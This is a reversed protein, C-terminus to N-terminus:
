NIVNITECRVGCWLKIVFQASQISFLEISVAPWHDRREGRELLSINAKLYKLTIVCVQCQRDTNIDLNVM